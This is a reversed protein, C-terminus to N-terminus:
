PNPNILDAAEQLFLNIMLTLNWYKHNGISKLNYVNESLFYQQTIDLM